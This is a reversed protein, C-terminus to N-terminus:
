ANSILGKRSLISVGMYMLTRYSLSELYDVGLFRCVRGDPEICVAGYREADPDARLALTALRGDTSAEHLMLMERLPFDRGLLADSNITIITETTFRDELNKIAGGTDLIPDEDSFEIEVGYRSNDSLHEHLKEALYHTNVFVRKLGAAAVLELSWDILAKDAVKILPKPILDTLPALRKGFGAALLVVDADIELHKVSDKM